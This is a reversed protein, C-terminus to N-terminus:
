AKENLGTLVAAFFENPLGPYNYNRITPKSPIPQLAEVLAEQWDSDSKPEFFLEGGSGGRAMDQYQWMAEQYMSAGFKKMHRYHEVINPVESKWNERNVRFPM